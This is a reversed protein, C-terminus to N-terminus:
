MDVACRFGVTSCRDLGPWMLLMKAIFSNKQPGGDTYWASGEAKYCSGGKLMVFRTRGDSYENGTLEWTNGCMDYCGFPSVGEPFARVPTTEGSTYKNCKNDEMENGWPYNLTNLGEAAFQWEEVTPLRKGAWRAYARADELDVYVVPHDDKGSPINGDEWHKLFNETIRPKYGSSTIFERFRSNTVPIEDIAFRTIETKRKILCVSHLPHTPTLALHENINGFAGCERFTYEMTMMLSAAPVPVMGSSASNYKTAEKEKIILNNRVPRSSDDSSHLFLEKQEALFNIFDADIRDQSISLFCGIGRIDIRGNFSIMREKKGSRIEEGRILDFYRRDSDAESNLLIGEAPFDNRNILTWLKVWSNQWSSIYVGSVPSLDSLPTWEDGSFLDSFRHQISYMTRYISKDKASWDSFLGFVNEWIMIGSGNMWAAQLQRIKDGSLRDIAHQMHSHEFWKNRYVGPVKSDQFWQAWSMHHTQIHELPLAIEGELVIGPKVSDLKERFDPANKMTDLFIGDCDISNIIGILSDLDSEHERRTGTDWPNYDIFVKINSQHFQRVVNRLGTLGGPMERYFDFQNREDLGIRPYAHWLVVSDYGGFQSKGEGILHDVTYLNKNYDYFESDCMMIFCCAFDSSVWRFPETHYSSGNYNLSLQKRKKWRILANRWSQWQLHDDPAPIINSEDWGAENFDPEQGGKTIAELVSVPVFTAMGGIFTKCLFNRRNM